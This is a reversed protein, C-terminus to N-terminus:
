GLEKGVQAALFRLFRDRNEDLALRLWEARRGQAHRLRTDEHQRVAYPTDYSVFCLLPDPQHTAGTRMMHGTRHPITRNAEELLVEAVERLARSAANRARQRALEGHWRLDAVGTVKM